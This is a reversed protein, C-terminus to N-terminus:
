LDVRLGLGVGHPTAWPTLQATGVPEKKGGIVILPIGVGALVAASLLGGYITVDFRGCNTGLSSVDGASYYTGSECATQELNAVMAALLAIPVFSVMVIGGAMMGTSHRVMKPRVETPTDIPAPAASTGFPDKPTVGAPEAGNVPTAPAADAPPAPAPPLAASPTVCAGQECVREGKCDTDKSCQAQAVATLLLYGSVGGLIGLFSRLQM